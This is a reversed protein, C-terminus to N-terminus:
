FERERERLDLRKNRLGGYFFLSFYFLHSFYCGPLVWLQFIKKGPHFTHHHEEEESFV